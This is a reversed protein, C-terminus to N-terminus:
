PVVRFTGSPHAGGAGAQGRKCGVRIRVVGVMAAVIPIIPLLHLVLAGLVPPVLPVLPLLPSPWVSWWHCAVAPVGAGATRCCSSLPAHLLGVVKSSHKRAVKDGSSHNTAISAVSKHRTTRRQRATARGAGASACPWKHAPTSGANEGVSGATASALLPNPFASNITPKEHPSACAHQCRVLKSQQGACAYNVNVCEVRIVARGQGAADQSGVRVLGLETGAEGTRQAACEQGRPQTSSQTPLGGHCPSSNPCERRRFPPAEWCAAAAWFPPPTAPASAAASCPPAAAARPPAATGGARPSDGCGGRRLPVAVQRAAARATSLAGPALPQSAPFRASPLGRGGTANGTANAERTRAVSQWDAAARGSREQECAACSAM